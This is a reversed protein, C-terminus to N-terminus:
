ENEAAIFITIQRGMADGISQAIIDIASPSLTDAIFGAGKYGFRKITGKKYIKAAIAEAFSWRAANISMGKKPPVPIKKHQIWEVLSQVNVRRGPKTGFEVDEWYDAM